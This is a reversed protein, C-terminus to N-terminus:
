YAGVNLSEGGKNNGCRVGGKHNGCRVEKTQLGLM